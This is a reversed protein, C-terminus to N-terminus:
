QTKICKSPLGTSPTYEPQLEANIWDTGLNEM